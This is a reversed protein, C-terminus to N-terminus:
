RLTQTGCAALEARAEVELESRKAQLSRLTARQEDLNVAVAEDTTFVQNGWCIGGAGGWNDDWGGGYGGWCFTAVPRTTQVEEIAYGRRITAETEAILANVVRLDQVARAECREQTTQCAALAAPLLLVFAARM